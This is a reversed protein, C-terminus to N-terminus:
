PLLRPVLYIVELVEYAAAAALVIASLMLVAAMSRLGSVYGQVRSSAGVSSPSVLARGLVWTALMALIYGQGELILTLSHPLMAAQLWPTTPALLLGWLAARVLGMAVGAFPLVLSPVVLVVLTGLFFNVCFTLCIASLVHGQEYAETVGLLPGHTLSLAVDRLLMEQIDPRGSVYLMAAAVLGYFLLNIGLYARRHRQLTLLGYSLWRKLIAM